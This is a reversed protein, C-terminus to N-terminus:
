GKSNIAHMVEIISDYCQPVVKIQLAPTVSTMFIFSDTAKDVRVCPNKFNYHRKTHMKAKRGSVFQPDKPVSNASNHQLDPLFHKQSSVDSLM